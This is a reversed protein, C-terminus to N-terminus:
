HKLFKELVLDHLKILYFMLISTIFVGIGLSVLYLDQHNISSYDQLPYYIIGSTFVVIWIGLVFKVSNGELKEM